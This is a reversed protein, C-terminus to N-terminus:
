LCNNLLIKNSKIDDCYMFGKRLDYRRLKCDLSGTLIEYSSVAVSTVSDKAEDFIQIADRSQSKCDWAKLTGDVSGSLIVTSEQNFKVCNVHSAHGRFRRVVQATSVDSLLVSRDMAGSAIKSSDHSGQADLM